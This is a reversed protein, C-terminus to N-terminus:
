KAKMEDDGRGRNENMKGFKVLLNWKETVLEQDKIISYKARVEGDIIAGEDDSSALKPSLIRAVSLKASEAMRPLRKEAIKVNQKAKTPVSNPAIVPAKIPWSVSLPNILPDAMPAIEPATKEM